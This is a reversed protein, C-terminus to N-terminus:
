RFGDTVYKFACTLYRFGDTVEDSAVWCTGGIIKRFGGLVDCGSVGSVGCHLWVDCVIQLWGVCMVYRFGTLVDSAM